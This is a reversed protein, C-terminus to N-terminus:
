STGGKPLGTRSDFHSFLEQRWQREDLDSMLMLFPNPTDPHARGGAARYAEIEALWERELRQRRHRTSEFLERIPHISM